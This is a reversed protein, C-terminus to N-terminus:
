TFQTVVVTVYVIPTATEPREPVPRTSSSLPPSLRGTLAFPLKVKAVAMALPVVYATVTRVCGELGACFQTTVMPLPVAKAFTVPMGTVQEFTEAFM